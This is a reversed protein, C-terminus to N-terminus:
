SSANGSSGSFFALRFAIRVLRLFLPEGAGIAASAAASCASANAPDDAQDCRPLVEYQDHCCVRNKSLRHLCALVVQLSGGFLRLTFVSRRPILVSRMPTVMIAPSSM